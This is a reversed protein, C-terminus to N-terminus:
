KANSIILKVTAVCEFAYIYIASLVLEILAHFNNDIFDRTQFFSIFMLDYWEQQFFNFAVKIRHWVNLPRYFCLAPPAQNATHPQSLPSESCEECLCEWWSIVRQSKRFSRSCKCKQWTDRTKKETVECKIIMIDKDKYMYYQILTLNICTINAESIVSVYVM